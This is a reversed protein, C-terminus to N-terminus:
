HRNGTVVTHETVTLATSQYCAEATPSTFSFPTQVEEHAQPIGSTQFPGRRVDPATVVSMSLFRTKQRTILSLVLNSHPLRDWASVSHSIFKPLSIPPRVSPDQNTTSSISLMSELLLQQQIQLLRQPATSQTNSRAAEEMLEHSLQTHARLLSSRGTLATPPLAPSQCSMRNHLLSFAIAQYSIFAAAYRQIASAAVKFLETNRQCTLTKAIHKFCCRHM